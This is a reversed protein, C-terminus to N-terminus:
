RVLTDSMPIPTDKGFCGTGGAILISTSPITKLLKEDEETDNLYWGIPAITQRIPHITDGLLIINWHVDNSSEFTARKPIPQRRKCEVVIYGADIDTKVFFYSYNVSKDSMETVFDKKEVEKGHRDYNIYIYRSDYFIISTGLTKEAIEFVWEDFPAKRLFTKLILFMMLLFFVGLVAFGGVIFKRYISSSTINVLLEPSKLFTIVFALVALVIAFIGLFRCYKFIKFMFQHRPQVGHLVQEDNHENAIKQDGIAKGAAM